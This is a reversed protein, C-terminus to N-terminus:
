SMNIKIRYFTPFGKTKLTYVTPTSTNIARSININSRDVNRFNRLTTARKDNNAKGAADENAVVKVFEVDM